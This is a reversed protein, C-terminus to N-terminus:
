RRSAPCLFWAGALAAVGAGVLFTAHPGVADWLVGAAVSAILVSVGTLLNFVGFATGRLDAPSADAVMKSLVGQTFGLHLGWLCCGCIVLLYEPSSALVIDAAIAFAIGVALPASRGRRDALVGAPYAALSYCVNTAIMVVPILGLAVGSGGARLVLFAESFRSFGLLVGLIAAHWFAVPLRGAGALTGRWGDKRREGQRVDPVFAILWSVSLVAPVVAIWLAGRLSVAGWTLLVVGLLPGIVAGVSDMAQRLGYAAGRSEIPTLDAILADRPAGRIGKGVRDVFRAAFVWLVSNALPFVPKTVAALGYGAVLLVKRRRIRDSVSGSVVRVISATAEAVGELLGIMVTSVGLVSALFVPLLSHILESSADM